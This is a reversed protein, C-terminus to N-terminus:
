YGLSQDVLILTIRGPREREFIVLKGVFSGKGGSEKMRKDEMPLAVERLRRIGEELTPVLKNVGAVWIVHQPGYVYLAVRNGSADAGIAEGTECIAQISGLFYDASLSLQGRLRARAAADNEKLWEANLYRYGSDPNKLYGVLGIEELTTSHGHAVSSGRPILSLITSLAGKGSGVLIPTVGRGKLAVFTRDIRARDAPAHRDTDAMFVEATLTM